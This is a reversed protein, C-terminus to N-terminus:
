ARTVSTTRLDPLTFLDTGERLHRLLIEALQGPKLDIAAVAEATLPIAQLHYEGRAPDGFEPGSRASAEASWTGARALYFYQREDGRNLIHLLSHIGVTAALEERLERALATELDEGADVGGGPLVWYPAHGPRVRRITLLENGPTILLARVRQSGMPPPHCRPHTGGPLAAFRGAHWRGPFLEPPSAGLDIVQSTTTVVVVPHNRAYAAIALALKPETGAPARYSRAFRIFDATLRARGELLLLSGTGYRQELSQAAPPDPKEALDHMLLHGDRQVAAIVGRNAALDRQYARALVAPYGSPAACLAALPNNGRYLNDAFAIYVDGAALHGSGNLVSTIDAYPGHQSITTVTLGAPTAAAPLGAAHSYSDHGQQSLAEGAWRTFAEYYPHCVIVVEAPGTQAIEELLHVIGPRGDVPYFEKPIYRAWGAIRTGLGGACVVVQIGGGTM